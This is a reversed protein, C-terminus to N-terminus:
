DNEKEAEAGIVETVIFYGERRGDAIARCFSALMIVDDMVITENLEEEKVGDKIEVNRPNDVMVANVQKGCRLAETLYGLRNPGLRDPENCPKANEITEPSINGEIINECEEMSGVMDFNPTIKPFLSLEAQYSCTGKIGCVISTPEPESEGKDNNKYFPFIHECRAPSKPDLNCVVIKKNM